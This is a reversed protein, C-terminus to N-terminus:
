ENSIVGNFIEAARPLIGNIFALLVGYNTIQVGSAKCIDLRSLISRRNAMCGGCHVVLSYQSVDFLFDNGSVFTFDLKKNTFKNLLGPIKVRGIDEHSTNHACSEAILIRSADTLEDVARLGDIFLNIDVHRNAVLMSFSTIKISKPVIIAAEKFIQSDTVVLDINDLVDALQSLGVATVIIESDLCERILQAQPLILRGKPAESDIPVVMVVRSGRPLLGGLMTREEENESNLKEAIKAKLKEISASDNINVFIADNFASKIDGIVAEAALDCKTVALIHNEYRKVMAAYHLIDFESATIVVVFLDAKLLVKETKEARMFGLETQDNVGATDIYAVAGYPLLEAAKIVPDTTTGKVDSVISLNQGVVANFLASKGANVEGVFAIHKRMSLPVVNLDANVANNGNM